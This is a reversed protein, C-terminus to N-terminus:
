KRKKDCYDKVCKLDKKLKRYEVILNSEDDKVQLLFASTLKVLAIHYSVGVEEIGDYESMGMYQLLDEPIECFEIKSYKASMWESGKELFISILIPDKRNPYVLPKKGTRAKYLRECDVSLALGVYCTNYLYGTPIRNLLKKKAKTSELVEKLYKENCTKCRKAPKVWTNHNCCYTKVNCECCTLFVAEKSTVSCFGVPTSFNCVVTM